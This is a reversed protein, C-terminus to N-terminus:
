HSKFGYKKGSLVDLLNVDEDASSERLYRSLAFAFVVTDVM